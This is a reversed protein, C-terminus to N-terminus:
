QNLIFFRGGKGNEKGWSKMHFALTDNYVLRLAEPTANM